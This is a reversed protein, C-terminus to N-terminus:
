KDCFCLICLVCLFRWRWVFSWSIKITCLQDQVRFQKKNYVNYNNSQRDRSGFLRQARLRMVFIWVLLRILVFPRRIFTSVIPTLFFCVLFHSLSIQSASIIFRFYNTVLAFRFSFSSFCCHRWRRGCDGGVVVRVAIIM